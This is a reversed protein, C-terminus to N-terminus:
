KSIFIEQQLIHIICHCIQVELVTSCVFNYSNWSELKVLIFMGCKRIPRGLAIDVALESAQGLIKIYCEIRRCYLFCPGENNPTKGHTPLIDTFTIGQLKFHTLCITTIYCADLEVKLSIETINNCTTKNISSVRKNINLM